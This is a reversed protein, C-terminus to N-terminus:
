NRIAVHTLFEAAKKKRQAFDYYTEVTKFGSSRLLTPLEDEKFPYLIFTKLPHGAGSEVINFIVLDDYIETPAGRLSEGCYMSEGSFPFTSLHTCAKRNDLMYQYNREDVILLGGPHLLLALQELAGKIDSRSTLMSLSNGLVLVADFLEAPSAAQAGSREGIDLWNWTRTPLTVSAKQAKNEAIRLLDIDIENAVVSFGHELLFVSECGCGAAADLIRTANHKNLISLLFPGEGVLRKQCNVYEDWRSAIDSFTINAFRQAESRVRERTLRESNEIVDGVYGVSDAYGGSIREGLSDEGAVHLTLRKKGVSSPDEPESFHLTFCGHWVGVDRTVLEHSRAIKLAETADIQRLEVCNNPDEHWEIFEEFADRHIRYDLGLRGLDVALVRTGLSLKEDSGARQSLSRKHAHLYHRYTRMYEGPPHTDVGDYRAHSSEFFAYALADVTDLNLIPGEGQLSVLIQSAEDLRQTAYRIFAEGAPSRVAHSQNNIMLLATLPERLTWFRAM